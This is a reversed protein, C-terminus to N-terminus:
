SPSTMASPAIAIRARSTGPMACAIRSLRPASRHTAVACRTALCGRVDKRTLHAPARAGDVRADVLNLLRSTQGLLSVCSPKEVKARRVLTLVSQDVAKADIQDLRACGHEVRDVCPVALDPLERCRLCGLHCAKRTPNVRVVRRVCPLVAVDGDKGFANVVDLRLRRHGARLAVLPIATGSAWATCGARLADM